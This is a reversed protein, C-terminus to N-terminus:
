SIILRKQCLKKLLIKLNKPIHEFDIGLMVVKSAGMYAAFQIRSYLSIFRFVSRSINNSFNPLNPYFHNQKLIFYTAKPIRKTEALCASALFM